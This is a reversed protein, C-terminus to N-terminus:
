KQAPEASFSIDEPSKCSVIISSVGTHTVNYGKDGCTKGAAMFCMSVDGGGFIGGCSIQYGTAGNSTYTQQVSASNCGLLSALLAFSAFVPLLKKM